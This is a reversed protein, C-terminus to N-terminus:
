FRAIKPPFSVGPKQRTAGPPRGFAQRFAQTFHSHSSFGLDLAIRTLDADPQEVLELAARLRLQTLYQHITTGTIKRFARCLHYPSYGVQVALDNLSLRETFRTSLCHKVAEAAAREVRRADQTQRREGTGWARVGAGVVQVLVSLLTEEVFIPDPQPQAQLHRVVQRQWFYSEADSPGHSFSFPRRPRDRVAPDCSGLIELLLREDPAIWECRDGAPDLQGRTYEQGQNYFMVVNPDAVVPDRGAHTITVSTRPFVILHRGIPGSDRFLPEGPKARFMGVRFVQSSYLIMLPRTM